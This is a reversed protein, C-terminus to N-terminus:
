SKSRKSFYFNAIETAYEDAFVLSTSYPANTAVAIFAAVCSGNKLTQADLVVYRYIDASTARRDPVYRRDSSSIWINGGNVDRCAERSPQIFIDKDREQYNLAHRATGVSLRQILWYGGAAVGVLTLSAALTVLLLFGRNNMRGNM